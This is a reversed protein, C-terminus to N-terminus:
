VSFSSEPALCASFLHDPLQKLCSAYGAPARDIPLASPLVKCVAKRGRKGGLERGKSSTEALCRVYILGPAWRM